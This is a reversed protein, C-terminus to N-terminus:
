RSARTLSQHTGCPGGPRELGCFASCVQRPRGPRGACKSRSTKAAKDGRSCCTELPRGTATSAWCASRWRQRRPGPVGGSSWRSFCSLPFLLWSRSSPRTIPASTFPFRWFDSVLVARSTVPGCSSASPQVTDESAKGFGGLHPPRSCKGKIEM